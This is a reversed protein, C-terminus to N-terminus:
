LRKARAHLTHELFHWAYAFMITLCTSAIVFHTAWGYRILSLWTNALAPQIHLLQQLLVIGISGLHICVYNQYRPPILPYTGWVLCAVIWYVFLACVQLWWAGDEELTIINSWAHEV